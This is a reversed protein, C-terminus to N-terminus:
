GQLAVGGTFYGNLDTLRSCITYPTSIAQREKCSVQQVPWGSGLHCKNFLTMKMLRYETLCRPIGGQKMPGPLEQLSALASGDM